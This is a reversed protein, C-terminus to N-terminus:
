PGVRVVVSADVLADRGCVQELLWAPDFPGERPVLCELGATGFDTPDPELVASTLRVGVPSADDALLTGRVTDGSAAPVPVDTPLWRGAVWLGPGPEGVHVETAAFTAEGPEGLALALVTVPGDGDATWDTTQADVETFTGGTAMWRVLGDTEAEIRATGGPEVTAPDVHLATPATITAPPRALELFARRDESGRRAVVALIPRDPVTLLPSAGAADALTLPDIAVVDDPDDVWYWALDVPRDSWARGDVVVAARPVVLDGEEAPPVSVAAIRFGVLDHRDAGFPELCAALLVWM